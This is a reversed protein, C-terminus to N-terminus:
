IVIKWIIDCGPRNLSDLYELPVSFFSYTFHAITRLVASHITAFCQSHKPTQYIERYKKKIIFNFIRKKYYLKKETKTVSTFDMLIIPISVVSAAWFIFWFYTGTCLFYLGCIYPIVCFFLSWLYLFTCLFYLGYIYSFECIIHLLFYMRPFLSIFWSYQYICLYYLGFIYSIIYFIYVLFILFHM